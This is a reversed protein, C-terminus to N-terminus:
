VREEEVSWVDGGQPVFRDFLVWRGDPSWVPYDIRSEPDDFEFVKRPEGDRLPSCWLTRHGLVDM